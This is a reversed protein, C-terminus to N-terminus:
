LLVVTERKDKDDCAGTGEGDMSSDGNGARPRFTESIGNHITRIVDDVVQSASGFSSSSESVMYELELASLIMGSRLGLASSVPVRCFFVFLFTLDNRLNFIVFDWGKGM